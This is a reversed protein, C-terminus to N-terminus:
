CTNFSILMGLTSSTLKGGGSSSCNADGQQSVSGRKTGSNSVAVSSSMEEEDMRFHNLIDLIKRNAPDIGISYYAPLYLDGVSHSVGNGRIWRQLLRRNLPTFSTTSTYSQTLKASGSAAVIQSGFKISAFCFHHFPNRLERFHIENM